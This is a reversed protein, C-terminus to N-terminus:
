ILVVLCNAVRKQHAPHPIVRTIGSCRAPSIARALAASEYRDDPSIPSASRYPASDARPIARCAPSSPVCPSMKTALESRLSTQLLYPCQCKVVVTAKNPCCNTLKVFDFFDPAKLTQAPDAQDGRFLHVPDSRVSAHYLRISDLTEKKAPKKEGLDFVTYFQQTENESRPQTLIACGTKGGASEEIFHRCEQLFVSLACNKLKRARTM